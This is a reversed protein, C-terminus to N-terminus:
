PDPGRVAGAAPRGPRPRPPDARRGPRHPPAADRRGARPRRDARALQGSRPLRVWSGGVFNKLGQEDFTPIEPAAPSRRAMTAGIARLTGSETHPKTTAITDFAMDLQGGVLDNMMLGSGKYPIHGTQIGAAANFMETALHTTTGAGSTTTSSARSSKALAILEALNTAAKVKSNVVLLVALAGGARDAHLRDRTSRCTRSLRRRSRRRPPGRAAAHLRRAAGQRRYQRRHHRRCRRTRWWWPQGWAQSLRGAMLRATIDITGGPVYPVIIRVPANPWAQAWAASGAGLAAAFLFASGLLRALRRRPSITTTSLTAGSSALADECGPQRVDRLRARLGCRM